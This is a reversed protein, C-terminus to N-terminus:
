DAFELEIGVPKFKSDVLSEKEFKDAEKNLKNLNSLLPNVSRNAGNLTIDLLLKNGEKSKRLYNIFKGVRVSAELGQNAAPISAILAKIPSQTAGALVALTSQAIPNKVLSSLKKHPIWDSLVQNLGTQWNEIKFLDNAVGGAKQWEPNNSGVEKIESKVISQIRKNLEALKSKGSTYIGNLRKNIDFLDSANFNKDKTRNTIRELNTLVENEKGASLGKDGGLLEKDKVELWIDELKDRLKSGDIPIKSGLEQEKNYQDSIFTKLKGPNKTFEGSSKKLLNSLSKFGQGAFIGSAFQTIPGAGLTKSGSIGLSGALDTALKAGLPASGLLAFPLNGATMELGETFWNDPKHGEPNLIDELHQSILKPRDEIPKGTILQKGANILNAPLETAYFPSKIAEKTVGEISKGASGLFDLPGQAKPTDIVARAAMAASPNQQNDFELEFDLPKFAM